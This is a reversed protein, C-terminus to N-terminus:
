LEANIMDFRVWQVDKKAHLREMLDAIDRYEETYRYFVAPAGPACLFNELWQGSEPM